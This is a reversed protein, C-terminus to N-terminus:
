DGSEVPHAAARVGEERRLLRRDAGPLLRLDALRLVAVGSPEDLDATGHPESQAEFMARYGEYNVFQALRVWDAANDAGGYSKDISERFSKGGQAGHLSFDHLGWMRGQPWMGIGADDARLSDMTVINPMGLESHLKPTARQAFYYKLPMAQYPGHGSVPDDASSPIYHLGPATRWLVQRMGDELAKPPMGENRGCYLGISPHSRIRLVTDRV